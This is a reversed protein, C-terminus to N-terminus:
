DANTELARRGASKMFERTLKLYERYVDRAFARRPKLQLVAEIPM